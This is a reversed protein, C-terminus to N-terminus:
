PSESNLWLERMKDKEAQLAEERTNFPGLLVEKGIPSFDVWWALPDHIPLKEIIEKPLDAETEVRSARKITVTDCCDKLIEMLSDSHIARGKSVSKSDCM